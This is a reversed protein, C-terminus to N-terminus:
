AAGGPRAGRPRERDPRRAAPRDARARRAIDDEHTVLIITKGGGHLQDFVRWSRRAPARHRPQRDARRRPPDVPRQGARPRHGRAAAPRGLAREPKHHMRDALGVRELAEEALPRRRRRRCAAYILPLEVNHFVDGAPAPQLDPLRLRDEPQPHGGARGRRPRSVDHGDLLYSGSTPVDLCGIINMLTSKGSGSPGM